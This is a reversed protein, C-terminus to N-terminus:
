RHHSKHKVAEQRRQEWAKKVADTSDIEAQDGESPLFGIVRDYRHV